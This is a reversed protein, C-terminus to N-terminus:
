SEGAVSMGEDGPGVDVNTSGAPIGPDEGADEPREHTIQPREDRAMLARRKRRLECGRRWTSM